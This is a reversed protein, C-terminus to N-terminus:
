RGTVTVSGVTNGNYDRLTHEHATADRRTMEGDLWARLIRVVEAARGDDAFAENDTKLRITITM